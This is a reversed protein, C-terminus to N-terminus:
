ASIEFMWMIVGTVAERWTRIKVKRGWLIKHLLEALHTSLARAIAAANLSGQWDMAGPPREVGFAGGFWCM